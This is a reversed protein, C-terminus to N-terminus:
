HQKVEYSACTAAIHLFHSGQYCKTLVHHACMPLKAQMKLRKLSHGELNEEVPDRKERRSFQPTAQKPMRSVISDINLAIQDWFFCKHGRHALFALWPLMQHACPSCVSPTNSANQAAESQSRGSYGGPLRKKGLHFVSPESTKANSQCHFRQERRNSRM